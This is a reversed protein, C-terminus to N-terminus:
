NYIMRRYYTKMRLEGPDPVADNESHFVSIAITKFDGNTNVIDYQIIQNGRIVLASAGAPSTVDTIDIVSLMEVIDQGHIVSDDAYSAVRLTQTASWIGSTLAMFILSFLALGILSEVMTFGHDNLKSINNKKYESM